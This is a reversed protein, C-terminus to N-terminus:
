ADGNVDRMNTGKRKPPKYSPIEDDSKIPLPPKTTTRVWYGYIFIAGYAVSFLLSVWQSAEAPTVVGFLTTIGGTIGGVLYTWPPMAHIGHQLTAEEHPNRYMEHIHSM